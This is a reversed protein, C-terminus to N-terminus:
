SGPALSRSLRRMYAVLTTRQFVLEVFRGNRVTAILGSTELEKIHHSITAASVKDADSLACCPLAGESAAIESLIGFRRPDSLAKAVAAFQRDSLELPEEAVPDGDRKHGSSM